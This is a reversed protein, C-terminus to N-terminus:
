DPPYQRGAQPGVNLLYNAGYRRCRAFEHILGEVSKYAFHMKRM